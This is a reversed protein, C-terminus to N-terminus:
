SRREEGMQKELHCLIHYVAVALWYMYRWSRTNATECCIQEVRRADAVLQKRTM